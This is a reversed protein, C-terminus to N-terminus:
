PQPESRSPPLGLTWDDDGRNLLVLLGSILSGDAQFRCVSSTIEEIKATGADIRRVTGRDQSVPGEYELYHMRHDDLRSARIPLSAPGTPETLLQWTLLADNHEIMLDWHECGYGTHHLIVFRAPM